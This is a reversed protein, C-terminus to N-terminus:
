TVRFYKITSMLGLKLGYLDLGCGLLCSVKINEVSRKKFRLLPRKRAPNQIIKKDAGIMSCMWDMENEKTHDSVNYEISLAAAEM